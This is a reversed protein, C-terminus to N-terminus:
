LESTVEIIFEGGSGGIGAVRVLYEEGANLAAFLRSRKSGSGCGDNNCGRLELADCAGAFLTLTSDFNAGSCLSFTYPGEPGAVFRYWTDRYDFYEDAGCTIAETGTAGGSSGAVPVGVVLLPADACDDNAPPPPLLVCSTEPTIAVAECAAQIADRQGQPLDLLAAASVLALYLDLYSAAPTLLATQCLFLLDSVLPIGLAEVSKGNFEGGDALLSVLRNGVGNNTHIGGGDATGTFWLPSCTSDPDGFATPDAMDRFAGLGPVDEGILWRVEPSDNGTGNALDIFEGWADSFCENIAGSQGFYILKSTAETLGHAYEHGVVDDALAFGQGFYARGSQWFANVYPCVANPDCYRVTARLPAGADDIGDRGHNELFYAYADGLLDYAADADDIGSPPAGENRVLSGISAPLNAADNIRRDLAMPTRDAHFLISANHSDVFYIARLLGWARVEVQWARRPPGSMGLVEPAFICEEVAIAAPRLYAPITARAHRLALAAADDGSIGAYATEDDVPARLIDAVALVVSGDRVLALCEAGYVPLRHLEQGFHVTAGLGHLAMGKDFLASPTRALGFDSKQESFFRRATEQPSEKRAPPASKAAPSLNSYFYRDGNPARLEQAQAAVCCLLLLAAIAGQRRRASHVRSFM